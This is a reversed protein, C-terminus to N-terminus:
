IDELTLSHIKGTIKVGYAGFSELTLPSGCVKINMGSVTLTIFNDDCASVCRCNEVYLEAGDRLILTSHARAMDELAILRDKVGM